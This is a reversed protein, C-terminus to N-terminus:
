DEAAERERRRKASFDLPDVRPQEATEGHKGRLFWFSPLEVKPVRVRPLSRDAVCQAEYVLALGAVALGLPLSVALWAAAVFCAIGTIELLDGLRM